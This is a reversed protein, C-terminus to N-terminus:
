GLNSVCIIQEKVLFGYVRPIEEESTVLKM